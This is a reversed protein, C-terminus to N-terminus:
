RGAGLKGVQGMLLGPNAPSTRASSGSNLTRLMGSEKGVAVSDRRNNNLNPTGLLLTGRDQGNTLTDYNKGRNGNYTNVWASFLKLFNPASNGRKVRPTGYGETKTYDRTLISMTAGSPISGEGYPNFTRLAAKVGSPLLQDPVRSDFM